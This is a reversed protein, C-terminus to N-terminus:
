EMLKLILSKINQMKESGAKASPILSSDSGNINLFIGRLEDHLPKEIGIKKLFEKTELAALLYGETDSETAKNFTSDSVINRLGLTTMIDVRARLLEIMLDKNSGSVLTSEHVETESNELDKTLATKILDYLSATQFNSKKKKLETQYHHNMHLAVSLAYFAVVHNQEQTLHLPNMKKTDVLDLLDGVRSTFERAASSYLALKVSQNDYLEDDTFLQYEFAQLYMGASMIKTRILSTESLLISFADHRNKLSDGSRQQQYMIAMIDRVSETTESMKTTSKEM